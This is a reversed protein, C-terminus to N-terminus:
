DNPAHAAGALDFYQHLTSVSEIVDQRQLAQGHALLIARRATACVQCVIQDGAQLAHNATCQSTRKRLLLAPLHYALTLCRTLNPAGRRIHYVSASCSQAAAPADAICM